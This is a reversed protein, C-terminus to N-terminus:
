ALFRAWCWIALAFLALAAALRLLLDGGTLDARQIEDESSLWGLLRAFFTAVFGFLSM